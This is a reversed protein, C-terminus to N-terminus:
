DLLSFFYPINHEPSCTFYSVIFRCRPMCSINIYGRRGCLVFNVNSVRSHVQHASDWVPVRTLSFGPRYMKLYPVTFYHTIFLFTFIFFLIYFRFLFSDRVYPFAEVGDRALFFFYNHYYTLHLLYVM